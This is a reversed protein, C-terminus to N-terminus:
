LIALVIKGSKFNNKFANNDIKSSKLNFRVFVLVTTLNIIRIVVDRYIDYGM